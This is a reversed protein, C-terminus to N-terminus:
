IFQCDMEQATVPMALERINDPLSCEEGRLYARLHEGRALMEPANLMVSVPGTTPISGEKRWM